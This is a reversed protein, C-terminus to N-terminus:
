RLSLMPKGSHPDNKLPDSNDQQTTNKTHVPFGTQASPHTCYSSNTQPGSGGSQYENMETTRRAIKGPENAEGGQEVERESAGRQEAERGSGVGQYAERAALSSEWTNARIV